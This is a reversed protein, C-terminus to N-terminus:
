DTYSQLVKMPLAAPTPDANVELMHESPTKEFHGGCCKLKWVLHPGSLADVKRVSLIPGCGKNEGPPRSIM